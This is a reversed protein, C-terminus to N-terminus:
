RGRGRRLVRRWDRTEVKEPVEEADDMFSGDGEELWVFPQPARWIDSETRVVAGGLGGKPAQEARSTELWTQLNHARLASAAGASAPRPEDTLTGTSSTLSSHSPSSPLYSFTVPTRPPTPPLIRASPVRTMPPPSADKGRKAFM